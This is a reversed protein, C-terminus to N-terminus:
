DLYMNNLEKIKQKCYVIKAIAEKIRTQFFNMKVQKTKYYRQLIDETIDIEIKLEDVLWEYDEREVKYGGNHLENLYEDVQQKIYDKSISKLM